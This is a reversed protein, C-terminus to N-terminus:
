EESWEMDVAWSTSNAAGNFCLGESIGRLVQPQDWYVSFQFLGESVTNASAAVPLSIYRNRVSGVTTGSTPLNAGNYYTSTATATPNLSDSPIPTIANPTGGTNVASRRILSIAVTGASASAVGTIRVGKIKVVKTASGYTCFLDGAGVTTNSFSAGASYTAVNVSGTVPLPNNTGVSICNPTSAGTSYCPNRQSNSDAFAITPLLCLVLALLIKKM